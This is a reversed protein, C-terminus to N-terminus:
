VMDYSWTNGNAGTFTLRIIYPAEKTLWFKMPGLSTNSEVVWAEVQKGGGISAKERGTVTATVWTFANTNEEIAPLSASYGLRLPLNVLLMGYMGGYFDFVPAEVNLTDETPTPRVAPDMVKRKIKTKDFELVRYDGDLGRSESRVAAMTKPDFVNITETAKSNISVASIQTRQLLKRGDVTVWRLDDTWAGATATTGNKGIISLKWLNTYPKLASGDMAADGVNVKVPADKVQATKDQAFVPLVMGSALIFVCAFKLIWKKETVTTIREVTFRGGDDIQIYAGWASANRVVRWGLGEIAVCEGGVADFCWGTHFGSFLGHWRVDCGVQVWV